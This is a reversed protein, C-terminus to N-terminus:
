QTDHPTTDLTKCIAGLSRGIEILYKLAHEQQATTMLSLDCALRLQYRHHNSLRLAERASQQRNIGYRADILNTLLSMGSSEIQMGLGYRFSKPM